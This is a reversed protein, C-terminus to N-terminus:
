SYPLSCFIIFDADALSLTEHLVTFVPPSLHGDLSIRSVPTYCVETLSAKNLSCNLKRHALTTLTVVVVAIGPSPRNVRWLLIQFPTLCRVALAFFTARHLRFGRLEKIFQTPFGQCLIKGGQETINPVLIM